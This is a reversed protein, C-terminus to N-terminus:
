ENSNEMYELNLLGKGLYFIKNDMLEEKVIRQLSTDEQLLSYDNCINIEYVFNLIDSICDEGNEVNFLNHFKSINSNRDIIEYIQNSLLWSNCIYQPNIINFIDKLIIKSDIISKKVSQIDLKNGKPIHIKIITKSNDNIVYEFQLRGIEIIRVRIFYIAWLMQSIRIGEYGRNILDNEFCERVRKKHINVQDVDFKYREINDKHFEYGLVIMLNTVFPNIDNGFLENIDKINWLEKM